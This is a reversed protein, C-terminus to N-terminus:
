ATIDVPGTSIGAAASVPAAPASVTTPVVSSVSHSSAAPIASTLALPMARSAAMLLLMSAETVASQSNLVIAM